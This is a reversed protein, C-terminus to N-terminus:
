LERHQESGAAAAVAAAAAEWARRLDPHQDEWQPLTQGDYASWDRAQCYAEYAVRGLDDFTM